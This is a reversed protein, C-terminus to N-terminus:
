DSEVEEISYHREGYVIEALGINEINYKKGLEEITSQLWDNKKKFFKEYDKKHTNNPYPNLKSWERYLSHYEDSFEKRINEIKEYEYLKAEVVDKSLSAFINDKNYSSYEGSEEVLVYIM